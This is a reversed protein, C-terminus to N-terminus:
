KDKLYQMVENLIETNREIVVILKQVLSSYKEDLSNMEPMVAFSEVLSKLLQNRSIKRNRAEEDLQQIVKM